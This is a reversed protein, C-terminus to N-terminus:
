LHVDGRWENENRQEHRYRRGRGARRQVPGLATQSPTKLEGKFVSKVKQERERGGYYRKSCPAIMCTDGFELKFLGPERM